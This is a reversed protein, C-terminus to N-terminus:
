RVVKDGRIYQSYSIHQETHQFSKSGDSFTQFGIDVTKTCCFKLDCTSLVNDIASANDEDNGLWDTDGKYQYQRIEVPKNLGLSCFYSHSGWENLSEKTLYKCVYAGIDTIVEDSNYKLGNLVKIDTIGQWHKNIIEFPIYEDNFIVLHAHISGLNGEKKGREIQREFVGLYKLKYGERKMAQIFTTLRRKFVDKDLCVDSTTLTLFKSHQTINAWILQRVKSRARFLNDDRKVYDDSANDKCKPVFFFKKECSYPISYQKFEVVDGCLVMKGTTYTKAKNNQSHYM